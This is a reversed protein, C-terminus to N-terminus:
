KKLLDLEFFSGLMLTEDRLPVLSQHRTANENQKLAVSAGALGMNVTVAWKVVDWRYTKGAAILRRDDDNVSMAFRINDDPQGM